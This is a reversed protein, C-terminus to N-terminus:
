DYYKCGDERKWIPYKDFIDRKNVTGLWSYRSGKLPYSYHHFGNKKIGEFWKRYQAYVQVIDTDSLNIERKSVSDFLVPFPSYFLAASSFALYNIYYLADLQLTYYKSKPKAGKFYGPNYQTVEIASIATDNEFNLLEEIAKIKVSDPLASFKRVYCGAEYTQLKVGIAEYKLSIKYKGQLHVREINIIKEQAYGQTGSILTLLMLLPHLMKM